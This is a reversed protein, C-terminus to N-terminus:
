ANGVMPGAPGNQRVSPTTMPGYQAETDISKAQNSDLGFFFQTSAMAQKDFYEVDLDGRPGAMESAIFWALPNLAKLIPIPQSAFPTTSAAVFDAFYAAYRLRIDTIQTAGSIYIAGARWEWSNNRPGKPVGPLGNDLRDMQFFQGGGFPREWLVLPTILDQPLVPSFLLTTGNFYNDWNIYAQAGPDANATGVSALIAESKNWSVGLSVLAEQFRRWGANIVTITFTATDTLVDGGISAIADNLRTRATNVALELNDLPATPM